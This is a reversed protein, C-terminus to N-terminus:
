LISEEGSFWWRLVAVLSRVFTRRPSTAQDFLFVEPWGCCFVAWLCTNAAQESHQGEWIWDCYRLQVGMYLEITEPGTESDRSWNQWHRVVLAGIWRGLLSWHRGFGLHLDGDDLIRILDGYYMWDEASKKDTFHLSLNTEPAVILFPIRNKLGFDEPHIPVRWSIKLLNSEWILILLSTRDVMSQNCTPSKSRLSGDPSWRVKSPHPSFVKFSPFVDLVEM